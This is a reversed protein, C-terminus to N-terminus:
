IDLLANYVGDNYLVFIQSYTLICLILAKCFHKLIHLYLHSHSSIKKPILDM